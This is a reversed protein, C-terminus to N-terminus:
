QLQKLQSNLKVARDRYQKASQHSPSIRLVKDWLAIAHELHQNRFQVVAERHLAESLAESLNKYSPNQRNVREEVQLFLDYALELNQAALSEQSQEILVQSKLRDKQDTVLDSYPGATVSLQELQKSVRQKTESSTLSEILHELGNQVLTRSESFKSDSKPISVLLQLAEFWQRTKFLERAQKLLKTANSAGAPIKIHQGVQIKRPDLIGNYRALGYFEMSSGLYRQALVGLTDGRKIKYKFHEHGYRTEPSETLQAYLRKALASNPYSALYTKLAAKARDPQGTELLKLIQKQTLLPTQPVSSSDVNSVPAPASQRVLSGCAILLLLAPLIVIFRSIPPM